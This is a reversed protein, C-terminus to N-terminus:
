CDKLSYRADAVSTALGHDQDWEQNYDDNWKKFIEVFM